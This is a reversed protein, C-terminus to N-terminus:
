AKKKSPQKSASPEPDDDEMDEFGIEDGAQPQPIKYKDYWYWNPVPVKESVKLDIELRDRLEIKEEDVFDWEGGKVQYGISELYPTLKENLLRIIFRRDAKHLGEQTEAHIYSQAYGSSKAETTTMTNGLITISIEENCAARLRAFLMDGQGSPNANLFNLQADMPAVVYGASGAAALAQELVERSQENNYTAWRFPIGFIEAYEAWDGFGGRKYIVYQAAQLLRGLDDREGVEIVNKIDAYPIGSTDWQEKTVVGLRPKVHKRPILFTQGMDSGPAGWYLELLSHGWFKSLMAQKLFDAFFTKDTLKTVEEVVDGDVHFQLDTNLIANVRKDIADSLHGDLLMDAYLDYLLVRQDYDGEAVILANRWKEIDQSQRNVPRVTVNNVIIQKDKAGAARYSRKPEAALEVPRVFVRAVSSLARNIQQKDVKKFFSASLPSKLVYQKIRHLTSM